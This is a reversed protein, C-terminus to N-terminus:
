AYRNVVWVVALVLGALYVGAAVLGVTRRETSTRVLRRAVATLVGFAAGFPIAYVALLFVVFGEGQGRNWSARGGFLLWGATYVLIPTLVFGVLGYALLRWLGLRATAQEPPNSTLQM